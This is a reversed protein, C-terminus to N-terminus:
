KYCDSNPAMKHLILIRIKNSIDPGWINLYKTSDYFLKEPSKNATNLITRFYLLGAWIKKKVTIIFWHLNKEDLFFCKELNPLIYWKSNSLNFKFYLIWQIICTNMVHINFLLNQKQFLNWLNCYFHSKHLKEKMPWFLQLVFITSAYM